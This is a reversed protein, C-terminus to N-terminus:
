VNQAQGNYCTVIHRIDKTSNKNKDYQTRAATPKPRECATPERSGGGIGPGRGAEKRGEPDTYKLCYLRAVRLHTKRSGGIHARESDHTVKDCSNSGGGITPGPHNIVV